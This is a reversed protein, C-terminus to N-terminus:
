TLSRGRSRLFAESVWLPGILLFFLDEFFSPKKGEVKHGYFQGIWALVFVIISTELVYPPNVSIYIWFPLMLIISAMIVKFNKFRAYFGLSVAVFLHTWRLDGFFEPVPIVWLLGLVSWEILPVCVKHIKQNLPNQHSESYKDLLQNLQKMFLIKANVSRM